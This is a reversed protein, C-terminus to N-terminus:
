NSNSAGESVTDKNSKLDRLAKIAEAADNRAVALFDILQPYEKLLEGWQKLDEMKFRALASRKGENANLEAITESKAKEYSIYAQMMASYLRMDPMVFDKSLKISHVAIEGNLKKQLDQEIKIQLAGYQFQAREYEEPKQIFYEIFENASKQAAQLVKEEIYSDLGNQTKISANKVISTLHEPNVAASVEIGWKWNFSNKQEMIASLKDASPLRGETLYEIQRPSLNFILVKANTPILREWRWLFKGPMIPASYYGGSKSLMVGYNGAPVAFQLWGFFFATGGIAIFFVFWIFFKHTGKKMFRLM